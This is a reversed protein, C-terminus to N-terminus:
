SLARATQRGPDGRARDQLDVELLLATCGSLREARERIVKAELGIADPQNRLAIQDGEDLRRYLPRSRRLRAAVGADPGSMVVRLRAAVGADPGSM